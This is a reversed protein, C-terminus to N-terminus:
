RSSSLNTTAWIQIAGFDDLGLKAEPHMFKYMRPPMSGDSVVDLIEQKQDANLPTETSLNLKGRGRNVDHHILWSMPAVNGYWPWKTENSHCNACARHLIADIRPDADFPANTASRSQSHGGYLGPDSGAIAVFGM